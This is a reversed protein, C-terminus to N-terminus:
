PTWQLPVVAQHEYEAFGIASQRSSTADAESSESDCDISTPEATPYNNEVFQEFEAFDKLKGTTPNEYNSGGPLTFVETIYFSTYNPSPGIGFHCYGYTTKPDAYQATVPSAACLMVGLLGFLYKKM